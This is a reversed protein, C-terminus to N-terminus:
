RETLRTHHRALISEFQDERAQGIEEIMTMAAAPAHLALHRAPGPSVNRFAHVVGRPVCVTSGAPAATWEDGILYEVEGELVYFVEEYEDHLHPLPFGGGPPLTSEFVAALTHGSESGAKVTLENPGVRFRRGDGPPVIRGADM